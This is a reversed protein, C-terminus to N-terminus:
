IAKEEKEPGTTEQSSQQLKLMTPRGVCVNGSDMCFEAELKIKWTQDLVVKRDLTTSVVVSRVSLCTFLKIEM